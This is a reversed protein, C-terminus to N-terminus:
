CTSRAPRPSTEHELFTLAFVALALAILMPTLSPAGFVEVGQGVLYPLSVGGLGAAAISMSAMQARVDPHRRAAWALMTPFVISFAIGALGFGILALSPFLTLLLALAGLGTGMRVARGFGLRDTAAALTIRAISFTLFFFSTAFAGLFAGKGIKSFFTTAWGGVATELGVYILFLAVFLATSRWPFGSWQVDAGHDVEFEPWRSALRATLLAGALVAGGAGRWGWGLWEGGAVVLPIVVAGLGWTSHLKTLAAAPEDGALLEILRNLVVELMGAGLGVLLASGVNLPYPLAILGLVGAGLLAVGVLVSQRMEFRRAVRNAVLTSAFFGFWHFVFLTGLSAPTRGTEESLYILSPGYLTTAAGLSAMCLMGAPLVQALRTRQAAISLATEM